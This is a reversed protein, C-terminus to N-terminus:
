RPRNEMEKRRKRWANSHLNGTKKNYDRHYAYYCIRCRHGGLRKVENAGSIEHGQLCHTALARLGRQHNVLRTVPEIHDPNICRRNRCLHDPVLGEPFSRGNKQEWLWVFPRKICKSGDLTSGFKTRVAYGDKDLRCLWNWCGTECDVLYKSAIREADSIRKIAM